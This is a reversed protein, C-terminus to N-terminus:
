PPASDNDPASAVRDIEPQVCRRETGDRNLTMLSLSRGARGYVLRESFYFLRRDDIWGPYVQGAGGALVTVYLDDALIEPHEGDADTLILKTGRSLTGSFPPSGVLLSKGDPSYFAYAANRDPKRIQGTALDLLLLRQPPFDDVEFETGPPGADFACLAVSHNDHSLDIHFKEGLLVRALPAANGSAADIRVLDALIHDQETRRVVQLALLEKGPAIWRFLPATREALRRVEGSAAHVLVLELTEEDKGPEHRKTSMRTLAIQSGDPSFLLYTPNRTRLLLRSDEGGLPGIRLDFQSTGGAVEAVTLLQRGDPSLRAFVPLDAGATRLKTVDGTTPQYLFWGEQRSIVLGGEPTVDLEVPLCGATLLLAAALLTRRARRASRPETAVLRCPSSPVLPPSFM